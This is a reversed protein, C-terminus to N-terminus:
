AEITDWLKVQKLAKHITKHAAEGFPNLNSKM